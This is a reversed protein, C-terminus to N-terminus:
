VHVIYMAFVTKVRSIRADVLGEHSIKDFAKERNGMWITLEETQASIRDNKSIVRLKEFHPYYLTVMFFPSNGDYVQSLNANESYPHNAHEYASLRRSM